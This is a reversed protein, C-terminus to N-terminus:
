EGKPSRTGGAAAQPGDGPERVLPTGTEGHSDAVYSSPPRVEQSRWDPREIIRFFAEVVAPDFQSGSGNRITEVAVEHSRAQRYPRVSTMADYVDAVSLIRAGPNIASGKTGRPYGSGDFHEHHQSVIPLVQQFAVIPELIREGILPHSRIVGIEEENLKSSKDLILRSVGIKGIDHLLAGSRLVRLEDDSLGMEHAIDLAIRTVRESHGATWPSKADVARALAQLTGWMLDGLEEVLSSNTLAVELQDVLQQVEEDRSSGLGDRARWGLVLAGPGRRRLTVPALVVSALEGGPDVLRRLSDDREALEVVVRGETLREQDRDSLRHTSCDVGPVGARGIHLVVTGSGDEALAVCALECELTKLVGSVTAEIVRSADLASLITRHLEAFMAQTKFQSQLRGAMDNFATALEEFEDGSNVEARWEFDRRALHDTAAKLQDLPGLTRRLTVISLLIVVWVTMLVVPPFARRFQAMPALISAKPECLVVVWDRVAFRGKLFVRRYGGLYETVGAALDVEGAVPSRPGGGILAALESCGPFSASLLKMRDDFWCAQYGAPVMNGGNTGWLFAPDIDGGITGAGAASGQSRVLLTVRLRGGVRGHSLLVSGGSRLWQLREQEVSATEGNRRLQASLQGDSVAFVREFRTAPPEDGGSAPIAALNGDLGSTRLDHELLLIRNYVALGVMKTSERLRRGSQTRLETLVERYSVVALTAIPILACLVFLLLIRHGIRTTFMKLRIKV